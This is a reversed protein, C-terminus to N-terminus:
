APPPPLQAVFTVAVTDPHGGDNPHPVFRVTGTGTCPVTLTAPIPEPTNYAHLVVPPNVVHAHSPIRVNIATATTGTFGDSHPDLVVSVTQGPVPNGVLTGTSTAHCNDTLIVAKVSQGKVLGDFHQDPGIAPGVDASAPAATVAATTAAAAAAVLWSALKRSM